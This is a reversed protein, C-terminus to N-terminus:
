NQMDYERKNYKTVELPYGNEMISFIKRMGFSIKLYICVYKVTKKPLPHDCDHHNCANHIWRFEIKLTNILNFNENKLIFFLLLYIRLM